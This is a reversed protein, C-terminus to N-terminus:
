VPDYQRLDIEMLHMGFLKRVKWFANKRGHYKEM